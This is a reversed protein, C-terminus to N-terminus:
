EKTSAQLANPPTTLNHEHFQRTQTIVEDLTTMFGAAEPQSLRKGLRAIGLFRTFLNEWRTVLECFTQHQAHFLSPWQQNLDRLFDRLFYLSWRMDYLTKGFSPPMFGHQEYHEVLQQRFYDTVARGAMYRYGTRSRERGELYARSITHLTQQALAPFSQERFADDLTVSIVGYPVLQRFGRRQQFCEFQSNGQWFQSFTDRSLTGLFPQPSADYMAVDQEDLQMVALYHDSIYVEDQNFPMDDSGGLSRVEFYHPQHYEPFHPLEYITGTVIAFQATQLEAQVQAFGDVLSTAPTVRYAFLSDASSFLKGPEFVGMMVNSETTRIGFVPIGRMDANALLSPMSLGTLQQMYLDILGYFCPYYNPIDLRPQLRHQHNQM